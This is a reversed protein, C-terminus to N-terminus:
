EFITGPRFNGTSADKFPIFYVSVRYYGIQKLCRLARGRDQGDLGRRILLDVQDGYPLHPKSYKM